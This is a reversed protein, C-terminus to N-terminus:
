QHLVKYTKSKSLNPVQMYDRCKDTMGCILHNGFNDTVHSTCLAECFINFQYLAYKVSTVSVEKLSYLTDPFPHNRSLDIFFTQTQRICPIKAIASCPCHKFTWPYILPRYIKLFLFIKVNWVMINTHMHESM